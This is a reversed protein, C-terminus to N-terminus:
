IVISQVVESDAFLPYINFPFILTLYGYNFVNLKLVLLSM